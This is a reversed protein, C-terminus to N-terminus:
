RALLRLAQKLQEDTNLQSNIQQLTTRVEGQSYGLSLLADFVDNGSTGQIANAQGVKNKLEVIIREATKKGVGGMKGFFTADGQAIAQELVAINAVSLIGLAIKPGVGSVTILLEFFKLDEIQSFGYLFQGDDTSRHYIYLELTSGPLAQLHEPKTFIRYGVGSTELIIQQNLTAIVQGKIYGIM